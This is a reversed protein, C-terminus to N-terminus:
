WSAHADDFWLGLPKTQAGAAIAVIGFRVRTAPRGYTNPATSKGVLKGDVYLESLASGSQSSRVQHM